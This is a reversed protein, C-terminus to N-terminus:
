KIHYKKEIKELFSAYKEQPLEFVGCFRNYIEVPIFGIHEYFSNKVSHLKVKQYGEKQAVKVAGYISLEGAGKIPRSSIDNNAICPASQILNIKFIERDNPNNKPNTTEMLCCVKKSIRLFTNKLETMYLNTSCLANDKSWDAKFKNIIKEGLITGAKWNTEIQKIRELDKPDNTNLQSFYGKVFKFSDNGKIKRLNVKNLVTQGFSLNSNSNVSGLNNM